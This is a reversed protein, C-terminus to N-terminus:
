FPNGGEEDEVEGGMIGSLKSIVEDNAASKTSKRPEIISINLGGSAEVLIQKNDDKSLIDRFSKAKVSIELTNGRVEFKAGNLPLSVGGNLIKVQKVFAAQDLNGVSTDTSAKAIPEAPKERIEASKGPTQATNVAPKSTATPNTTPNPAPITTPNPASSVSHALAEPKTLAVLLKAEVFPPKIEALKALLPM